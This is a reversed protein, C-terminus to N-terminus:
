VELPVREFSIFYSYAYFTVSILLLLQFVESNIHNLSSRDARPCWDVAWVNGGVYMVFDKSCCAETLVFYISIFEFTEIACRM